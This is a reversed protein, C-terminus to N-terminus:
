VPIEPPLFTNVPVGTGPCFVGDCDGQAFRTAIRHAARRLIVPEIQLFHTKNGFRKHWQHRLRLSFPCEFPIQDLIAIELGANELACRTNWVLGSWLLRDTARDACAYLLKM